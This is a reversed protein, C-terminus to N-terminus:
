RAGCKSRDSLGLSARERLFWISDTTISADPGGHLADAPRLFYGGAVYDDTVPVGAVCESNRMAGSLLYGERDSLSASWPLSTGAAIKELWTRDGSGPDLRLEKQFVGPVPTSEWELLNSDIILPTQIVSGNSVDLIRYLVRAGDYARLNFGLSGPPLYAYSGPTLQMDSGLGLEGQLVFIELAKGPSAGSSGVWSVPLDIRYSGTRNEADAFFRKARVGPLEALFVDGIEGTDVFAPYPLVPKSACGVQALALILVLLFVSRCLM